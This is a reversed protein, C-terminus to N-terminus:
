GIIASTAADTLGGKAMGALQEKEVARYEGTHEEPPAASAGNECWFRSCGIDAFACQDRM